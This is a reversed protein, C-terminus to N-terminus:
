KLARVPINNMVQTNWNDKGFLFGHVAHATDPDIHRQQSLLQRNFALLSSIDNSNKLEEISSYTTPRVRAGAKRIEDVTTKTGAVTTGPLGAIVFCNLEINNYRCSDSLRHFRDLLIQKRKPLSPLGASELTELGVSIRICGSHAMELVLNDDLDAITTACKWPFRSGRAILEQCLHLTWRRNLTFTPAYFSVYEFPHDNFCQEIYSVTREVTLRRERLGQVIPVECFSCNTPCGRAVPVVLERRQPIGCFKNQDRLYLRDYAAYPIDAPEPLQWKDSPLAEGRPGSYWGHESRLIVGSAKLPNNDLNALSTAYSAAASEIDGSYIIGDLDFQKFPEPNLSSLRGGTIIKSKPSLTRIYQLLRALNDTNDFDNIIVVLDYLHQYFLEGIEKWSYNLAGADVTHVSSFKLNKRLYSATLFVVLHHGANFYSPIHPPWIVLINM